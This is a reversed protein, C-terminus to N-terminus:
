AREGGNDADGGGDSDGGTAAPTDPMRGEATAELLHERRVAVLRDWDEEDFTTRAYSRALRDSPAEVHGVNVLDDGPNIRGFVEYKM